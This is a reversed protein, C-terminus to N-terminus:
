GVGEGNTMGRGVESQGCETTWVLQGEGGGEAEVEVTDATLLNNTSTMADWGVDSDINWRLGKTKVAKVRGGLAFLGCHGGEREMGEVEVKWRGGTSGGGAGGAGGGGGLLTVLNGEGLLLMRSHPLLHAHSSLTHLNAVQQDFRGGFAGYIVVLPPLPTPPPVLVPLLLLAKQLDTSYLDSSHHVPVRLEDRYYALVAPAISDFDGVLAHPPHSARLSPPLHRHVRNAGGDACLRLTAHTWLPTLFSGVDGNVVILVFPDPPPPFFSPSTSAHAPSPSIHRLFSHRILTPPPSPTSSASM